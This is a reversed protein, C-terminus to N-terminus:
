KINKNKHFFGQSYGLRESIIKSAKVISEIIREKKEADVPFNLYSISIAYNVVGNHDKIPAGICVLNEENEEEDVAFGNKRVEILQKKIASIDVITKETKKVLTCNEFYKTLREEDFFALISKGLSTSYLPDECGVQSAAHVYGKGQIIELYLVSNNYLMGLNVSENFKHNLDQIIETSEKKIDLNNIINLGLFLLKKGLKYKKTKKNQEVFANEELSKLLRYISSKNCKMEKTIEALSKSKNNSCCELIKLAKTVTKSNNMKLKM